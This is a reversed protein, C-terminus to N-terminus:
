HAAPHGQALDDLAELCPDVPVGHDLHWNIATVLRLVHYAHLTARLEPTCREGYGDLVADLRQPEFTTLVAVDFLPDGVQAADLDIFRASGDPAVLVHKPMCDGHVFALRPPDM